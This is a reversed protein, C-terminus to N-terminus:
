EFFGFLDQYTHGESDNVRDGLMYVHGMQLVELATMCQVLGAAM